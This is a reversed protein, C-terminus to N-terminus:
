VSRLNDIIEQAIQKFTELKEANDFATSFPFTPRRDAQDDIVPANVLEGLSKLTSRRLKSEDYPPYESLYSFQVQVAPRRPYAWVSFVTLEDDGIQVRVHFGPTIKGGFDVSDANQKGWRYLDSAVLTNEKGGPLQTLYNFFNDRDPLTSLKKPARRPAASRDLKWLAKTLKKIAKPTNDQFNTVQRNILHLPLPLDDILATHIPKKLDMALLAEREVWESERAARSMVVVMAACDEIANQITQIWREGSGIDDFDVWVEFGDESLADALMRTFENDKASHSIFIYESPSGLNWLSGTLDEIARTYDSQFDILRKNILYLPLSLDDILATFVPKKLDMAFLTEREVWESELGANSMVVVMVACDEIAKQITRIWRDGSVDDYDVWVELGDACLDDVLTRTFDNDETSHSVFIYAM